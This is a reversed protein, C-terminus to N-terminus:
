IFTFAPWPSALKKPILKPKDSSMVFISDVNGSLSHEELQENQNQQSAKCEQYLNYASSTRIYANCEAFAHM